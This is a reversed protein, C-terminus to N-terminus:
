GGFAVDEVGLEVDELAKKDLGVVDLENTNDDMGDMGDLARLMLLSLLAIMPPTM